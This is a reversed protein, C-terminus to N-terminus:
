IYIIYIYIIYYNYINNLFLNYLFFIDKMYKLKVFFGLFTTLKM